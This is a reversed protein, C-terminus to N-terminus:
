WIITDSSKIILDNSVPNWNETQNDFPNIILDLFEVILDILVWFFTQYHDKLPHRHLSLSFTLVSPDLHDMYTDWSCEVYDTTSITRFPSVKTPSSSTARYRVRWPICFEKIFTSCLEQRGSVMVSILLRRRSSPFVCMHSRLPNCLNFGTRTRHTQTDM